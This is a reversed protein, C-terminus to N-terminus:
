FANEHLYLESWIRGYVERVILSIPKKGIRFTYELDAM